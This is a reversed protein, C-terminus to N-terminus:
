RVDDFDDWDNLDGLEKRLLEEERLREVHRWGSSAKARHRQDAEVMHDVFDEADFDEDAFFDTSDSNERSRKSGKSM